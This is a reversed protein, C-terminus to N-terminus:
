CRASHTSTRTKHAVLDFLQILNITLPREEQFCTHYGQLNENYKPRKLPFSYLTVSIPLTKLGILYRPLTWRVELYRKSALKLQIKDTTDRRPCINVAM